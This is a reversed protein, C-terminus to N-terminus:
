ETFHQRIRTGPYYYSLIEQYSFGEEARKKTGWQCLGVGHGYGVGTFTFDDDTGKVEFGTSRIVGYGVLKRFSVAQITTKGEGSVLEISDIRGSRNRSKPRIEKLGRVKYGAARLISELRRRPVTQEWVVSPSSMCYTCEVGRLYPLRTPWVNESAETHGGCSSHFFALVIAGDYTLVEGATEEVAREARSDEIDCGDYVQDYVTSELHYPMNKRSEKQYLAFSRAVVVQAKVAEIPWQSSIECNVLGVLYEELQIEDIVLLGKEAAVIEITGRYGKGNIQVIGPSSLVLSRAQVEGASVGNRGRKVTFPTEIEVRRGDGTSVSLGYGSIRVSELGKYIAVRVTEPRSAASEATSFALCMFLMVTLFLKVAPM